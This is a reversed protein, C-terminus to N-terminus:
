RAHCGHYIYPGRLIFGGSFLVTCLLINICKQLDFLDELRVCLIPLKKVNTNSGSNYSSIYTYIHLVQKFTTEAQIILLDSHRIM